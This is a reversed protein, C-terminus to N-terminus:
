LSNSECECKEVLGRSSEVVESEDSYKRSIAVMSRIIGGKCFDIRKRDSNMSQQDVFILFPFLSISYVNSELSIQYLSGLASGFTGNATAFCEDRIPSSGLPRITNRNQLSPSILVTESTSFFYNRMTLTSSSKPGQKQQIRRRSANLDLALEVYGFGGSGLQRVM